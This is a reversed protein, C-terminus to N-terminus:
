PQPNKSTMVLIIDSKEKDVEFDSKYFNWNDLSSSKKLFMSLKLPYTQLYVLQGPKPGSTQGCPQKNKLVKRTSPEFYCDIQSLREVGELESM